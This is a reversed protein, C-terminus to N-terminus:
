KEAIAVLAKMDDSSLCVGTPNHPHTVSIYKTKKSVAKKLAKMDIRWGDEYRLDIYKISAGLARPTEINTAYNPRVVVMEDGKELLSTAIIFLAGAAGITLLVQEKSLTSSEKALLERLGEHGAHPGYGLVLQRLDTEMAGLRMDTYSSESLNNKIMDYGMQEPSEIEIPMRRYRM